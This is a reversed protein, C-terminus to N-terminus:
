KGSLTDDVMSDLHNLIIESTLVQPLIKPRAKADMGYLLYLPVSNRGFKRLEESIEPDNSTWDAKMRVVGLDSFKKEVEGGSLILHNAQCILCWKATFDIFVPTGQQRLEMVREKSFPEWKNEATYFPQSIDKMMSANYALVGGAALFTATFTYAVWRTIRKSLPTGWQGYIWSGLSMFLFGALLLIMGGSGTQAGFVWLLWLVTAIMLFGMMQKFVIMWNGPKPLFRLLGPFAGLLLYPSCMGLALSTFVLLALSAPMTFALGVATGLFPGTCPTAVATALVGSFFSSKLGESSKRAQGAFSVLNIGIEFIGFLSLGFLFIITALIAVFLPEQLQFGWGVAHGYAQLTLLIGALTWFSILVGFSFALGHKFALSRNQGSLKVFGLIKFSIVPLVCPMLNLILGGIFAFGLALWFGGREENTDFSPPKSNARKPEIMATEELVSGVLQNIEYAGAITNDEERLVLIGQLTQQKKRGESEQLIVKYQHPGSVDKILTADISSDIQDSEEPFFEAQIIKRPSEIELVILNQDKRTASIKNFDKQPLALRGRSFIDKFKSNSQPLHSSVPISTSLKIGGPLCSADDCVVWKIEAGIEVPNNVTASSTVRALLILEEDYGFGVVSNFNMKKPIPWEVSDIRFGQPLSWKIQPGMGSDGPNKWYTHWGKNLKLHVALWFSRGPQITEEECLLLAKVPENEENSYTLVQLDLPNSHLFVPFNLIWLIFFSLIFLKTGKFNEISNISL